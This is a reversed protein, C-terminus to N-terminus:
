GRKARKQQMDAIYSPMGELDRHRQLPSGNTEKVSNQQVGLVDNLKCIAPV